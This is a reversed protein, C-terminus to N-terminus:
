GNKAGLASRKIQTIGIEKFLKLPDVRGEPECFGKFTLPVGGESIGLALIFRGGVAQLTNYSVVTEGTTADIYRWKKSVVRVWTGKIEVDPLNALYVTRGTAKARDVQVTANESCLKEFQRKGVIEDILPLPLLALYLVVRLLYAWWIAPLLIAILKVLYFAVVLWLVAVFILLIGTM